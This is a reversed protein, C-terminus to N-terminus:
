KYILEIDFHGPPQRHMQVFTQVIRNPDFHTGPQVFGYVTVTGVHIGHEGLEQALSYTLNRLAAKSMSLSAYEAAPEYAFSGGTFIISGRGRATMGTAVAQAAVLAGTVNVKFEDALREPDLTLPRGNRTSAANYILVDAAGLEAEAGAIAERLAREDIADAAYTRAKRGLKSVEACVEVLRATNRTILGVDYGERAFALALAEGIGPGVGIIICSSPTDRKM